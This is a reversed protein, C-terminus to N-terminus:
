ESPAKEKNLGFNRDYESIIDELTTIMVYHVARVAPDTVNAHADIHEQLRDELRERFREVSTLEVTIVEDLDYWLKREVNSLFGGICISYGFM